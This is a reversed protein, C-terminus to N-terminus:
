KALEEDYDKMMIELKVDGSVETKDQWGGFRKQKKTFIYRSSMAKDMFRPDVSMEYQIRTYAMEITEQLDPCRDGSLWNWLTRVTVGLYYALGEEGVLEGTAHIHDFYEDIKAQLAAADAYFRREDQKKEAKKETKEKKPRPM